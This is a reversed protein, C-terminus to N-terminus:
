GVSPNKELRRDMEGPNHIVMLVTSIVTNLRDADNEIGRLDWCFVAQGDKNIVLSNGPFVEVTYPSSVTFQLQM